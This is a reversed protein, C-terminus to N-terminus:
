PAKNLFWFGHARELDFNISTNQTKVCGRISVAM